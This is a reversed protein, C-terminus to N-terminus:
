LSSAGNVLFKGFDLRGIGREEIFLKDPNASLYLSIKEKNRHFKDLHENLYKTPVKLYHYDNTGPAVQCLLNVYDYRQTDLAKMPIQLWWVNTKPWSEEPIYYKSTYTKNRENKYKSLFWKQAQSM